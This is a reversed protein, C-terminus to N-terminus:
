HRKQAEVEADVLFTTIDNTAIGGALLLVQGLQSSGSRSGQEPGLTATKAYLTATEPCLTAHLMATKPCLSATELYQSATMSYPSAAM